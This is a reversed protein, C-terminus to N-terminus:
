QGVGIEALIQGIDSFDSFVPYAARERLRVARIKEGIGIFRWGLRESAEADWAGDGFYIVETIDKKVGPVRRYSAMMIDVRAHADDASAFALDDINIGAHRLKANASASWGGTALAIVLDPTRRLTELFAAAGRVQECCEPNTRLADEILQVFRRRVMSLESMPRRHKEFLAATIGSDTVHQYHSWDTDIAADLHESM